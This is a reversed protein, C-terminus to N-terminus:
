QVLPDKGPGRLREGAFLSLAIVIILLVGYASASGFNFQRLESLIAVSIPRNLYVYAMISVVFDGFATIFALVSGAIAGPLVLPLIVRRVTYLPTGGLSAAAEEISPDVQAFSADIARVVLPLNRIFYIFPLLVITGALFRSFSEVM